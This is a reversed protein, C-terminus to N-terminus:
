RREFDVILHLKKNMTDVRINNCKISKKMSACSHFKYQRQKRIQVENDIGRLRKLAYSVDIPPFSKEEMAFECEKAYTAKANYIFIELERFLTSYYGNQDSEYISRKNYIKQASGLKETAIQNPRYTNFIEPHISIKPTQNFLTLARSRNM